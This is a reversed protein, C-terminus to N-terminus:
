AQPSGSGSLRFDGGTLAETQFLRLGVGSLSRRLGSKVFYGAQATSYAEAYQGQENYVWGIQYYPTSYDSRVQTARRYADLAEPYRKLNRYAYGLENFSYADNPNLTVAQQLSVLAEDYDEKDNQIWGIHYYASAIPKMAVAKQYAELADDYQKANFAEDGM